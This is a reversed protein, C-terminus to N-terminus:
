TTGTNRQDLFHAFVAIVLKCILKKEGYSKLPLTKRFDMWSFGLYIGYIGNTAPQFSHQMGTRNICLELLQEAWYVWSAVCVLVYMMCRPLLSFRIKPLQWLPLLCVCVCVSVCLLYQLGRQAHAGLTLSHMRAHTHAHTCTHAFAHLHIVIHYLFKWLILRM